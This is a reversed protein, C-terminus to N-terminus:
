KYGGNLAPPSENNVKVVGRVIAMRITTDPPITFFYILRSPGYVVRLSCGYLAYLLLARLALSIFMLKVFHRVKALILQM